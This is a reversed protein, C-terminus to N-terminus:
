WGGGAPMSLQCRGWSGPRLLNMFPPLLGLSLRWLHPDLSIYSTSVNYRGPIYIPQDDFIRHEPSSSHSSTHSSSHRTLHSPSARGDGQSDDDDDDPRPQQHQCRGPSSPRPGTEETLVPNKVRNILQTWADMRLNDLHDFVDQYHTSFEDAYRSALGELVGRVGDQACM